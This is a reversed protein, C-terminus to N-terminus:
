MKKIELTIEQMRPMFVRRNYKQNGQQITADGKIVLFNTMGAPAELTVTQDVSSIMSVIILDQGV